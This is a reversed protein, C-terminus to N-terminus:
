PPLVVTQPFRPRDKKNAPFNDPTIYNFASFLCAAINFINCHAPQLIQFIATHLSFTWVHCSMVKSKQQFIQTRLARHLVYDKTKRRFWRRELGLPKQQFIQTRLARHLLYSKTKRRIWRRELGLNASLLIVSNEPKYLICIQVTVRRARILEM